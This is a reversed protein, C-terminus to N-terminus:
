FYFRAGLQLLQQEGQYPDGAWATATGTATFGAPNKSNFVNFMELYLELGLDKAFDFTKALRLDLQSFSAGTGSNAHSVGPALTIMPAGQTFITFPMGSHYRFMGSVLFGLGLQYSGALTVRHRADTDLPGVCPGSCAPDYPDVSQDRYSKLDPQYETRTIRFEDAGGLINGTTRSLTYFGQLEFKDGRVHVGVNLGEYDAFGDGTWIRFNNSFGLSTFLREGTDNNIIPNGRVRYPLDRYQAKVADATLGVTPSVQWSYGLSIQDSRPPKLNPSAVEAPTSAGVACTAGPYLECPPLPQGLQFYSGDPNKIGNPDTIEYIVGYDSQVVGAAWLITANIYPFAYFRGLGGRLIHQANGTIDWSFGIRPAWDDNSNQLVRGGGNKFPQLETYSYLTQTSLMQWLTNTSQDLTLADYYDYRLGLNLTLNPSVRWDDQFYASYQKTPTSQGNFGGYKTVDGVVWDPAGAPGPVMSYQGSLGSTLNGNLTPENVFALGTKFDHTKGGTTKSFTFDDKYQYKTQNTAQPLFVNQGVAFGNPYYLLPDNSDATITNNFKSYQFVFENLKDNSIQASYGVLISSYKNLTTGLNSPAATSSQGYKTDNKQYGYRVQLYNQANVDWTVKATGLEDHSPIPVALGTLEPYLARLEDTGPDVIYSQDIATKEYTAFFHVKDKVIPGGFSAGYQDRTYDAKGSGAQKEANTESNWGKRRAFEWVAGRFDNTGTKSIVTLVGGSSAGYEAKYQMTQIKFEQVSELNFNQLAGGITDDTNDGGDMIYNVNRGSGGNLAVVLQNPKTPDTNYGLMTGPALVGLNAFQRGNLPLSQLENQSVVTGIAPTTEVLPAEATVTVSEAVKSPKMTIEIARNTAITIEVREITVIAFGTLEAKLLYTGAPLSLFRFDGDTATVATRTFGTDVNTVTITVGPVPATGDTANGGLSGTAGTQAQLPGPLLLCAALIALGALVPSRLHLRTM